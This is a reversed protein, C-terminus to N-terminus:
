NVDNGTDNRHRKVRRGFSVLSFALIAAAAILWAWDAGDGSSATSLQEPHVRLFKGPSTSDAILFGSPGPSRLDGFIVFAYAGPKVRPVRFRLEYSQGYSTPSARTAWGLFVYPRERPLRPAIPSSCPGHKGECVPALARRAQASPFLSVPWQQPCRSGGCGVALDVLQGPAGVNPKVGIVGIDADAQSVMFLVASALLGASLLRRWVRQM